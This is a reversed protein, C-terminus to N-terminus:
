CFTLFMNNSISTYHIDLYTKFDIHCVQYNRLWQSTLQLAIVRPNSKLAMYMEQLPEAVPYYVVFPRSPKVFQLLENFINLPDEKCTIVLSDVKNTLLEAGLINDYHWKPKKPDSREKQNNEISINESANGVEVTKTTTKKDVISMEEDTNIVTVSDQTASNSVDQNEETRAIKSKHETNNEDAKRNLSVIDTEKSTTSDVVSMAEDTNVVTVSDQVSSSADSNSVDKNEETRAIKSKHETNNEDTKRKLSERDTEKSTTKINNDSKENHTDCGQYVQRLVSYINVSICRNYQEEPFNMALLAQKQSMNGPHIHILKGDTEEGILSLLAAAMLGNSGSDYLLHVGQSQVNSYIMILSLTDFRIHQIKGPELKYMIDAILRMNPRVIQLYESYKKEKKKLYKQQAYETKSHFTTSNSILTEVIDSASNADTALEKIEDATLKQSKGDDVIDRNDDGSIKIEIEDKLEAAENTWELSFERGRKGKPAMKFMSFYPYGVIGDLNVSDRGISITSDAKNFKYIKKYNHKQIIIYCGVQICNDPDIEANVISTESM